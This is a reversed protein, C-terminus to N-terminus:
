HYQFIDILYNSMSSFIPWNERSGLFLVHVFLGDGDVVGSLANSTPGSTACMPHMM